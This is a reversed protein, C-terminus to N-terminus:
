IPLDEPATYYEINLREAVDRATPEIMPSVMIKRLVKKNEKKEYFNVKRLFTY